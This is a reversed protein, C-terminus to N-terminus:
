WTLKFEADTSGISTNSEQLIFGDSPPRAAVSGASQPIVYRVRYITDTSNRNDQKRSIYTRPTAAGLSTTGLSVVQSYISNETAAAAVKIYWQSNTTDYQIPHGIDGSNKDSVRSVISLVGGKNNITVAAANIADNQTKAIKLETATLGSTIAYYVTNPTLGDPLRGSDSLIRISEGNFLSHSQTLSLTNSAISNIGATSRNVYFKKESSSQSGPMVIRSTFETVVGVNSILVKLLDNEKQVLEIVKWFMKQNLMLTQKLMFISIALQHLGVTKSVDISNFEIAIETKSIEKPPIIHTIYGLDDQPFATRKFGSAVLAKAGFNSNSNTVSFDGGSEVAFHEAYGIAFISVNQIFADNIAKIHFNRYAPKFVASSNNSITENGAVTNDDYQSSSPNYVVFANDDKKYVM